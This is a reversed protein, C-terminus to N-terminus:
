ANTFKRRNKLLILLLLVTPRNKHYRVRELLTRLIFLYIFEHRNLSIITEGQLIQDYLIPQNIEAKREKEVVWLCNMSTVAVLICRAM